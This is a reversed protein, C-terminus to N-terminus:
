NPRLCDATAFKKGATSAHAARAIVVNVPLPTPVADDLVATLGLEELRSKLAAFKYHASQEAQLLQAMGDWFDIAHKAHRCHHLFRLADAVLMPPLLKQRPDVLWVRTDRSTRGNWYYRIRWGRLQGHASITARRYLGTVPVTIAIEYTKRTLTRVQECSIVRNRSLTFCSRQGVVHSIVLEKLGTWYNQLRQRLRILPQM